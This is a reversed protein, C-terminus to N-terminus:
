FNVERFKLSSLANVEDKAQKVNEIKCLILSFSFPPWPGKKEKLLSAYVSNIYTHYAIDQVLLTDPILHPLWHPVKTSGAMRIYVGDSIM